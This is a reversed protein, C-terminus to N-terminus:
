VTTAPDAVPGVAALGIASATLLANLRPSFDLAVHAWRPEQEYLAALAPAPHSLQWLGPALVVAVTLLSEIQGITMTSARDLAEVIGDHAAFANTKYRRAREIEM